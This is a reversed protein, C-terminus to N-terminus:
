ASAKTRKVSAKMQKVSANTQQPVAVADVANARESEMYRNYVQQLGLFRMVVYAVGICFMVFSVVWVFSGTIRGILSEHVKHTKTNRVISVTFSEEFGILGVLAYLAGRQIWGVLFPIKDQWLDMEALCFLGCLAFLYFRLFLQFVTEDLMVLTLAQAVVMALCTLIAGIKATHFVWWLVDETFSSSESPEATNSTLPTTEKAM